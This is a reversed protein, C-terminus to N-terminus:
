RGRPGGKWKKLTITTHALAGTPSPWRAPEGEIAYVVGRYCVRDTSEVDVGSPAQVTWTVLAVNAHELMEATAGPQVDCGEVTRAAETDTPHAVLSGNDRVFLPRLIEIKQTAFSLM